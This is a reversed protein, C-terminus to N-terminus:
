YKTEIACMNFLSIKSIIAEEITGTLEKSLSENALLLLRKHSFIEKREEMYEKINSQEATLVGRQLTEIFDSAFKKSMKKDLEITNKPDLTGRILKRTEIKEFFYEHLDAKKKEEKTNSESRKKLKTGWVSQFAYAFAYTSITREAPDALKAQIYNIEYNVIRFLSCLYNVIRKVTGSSINEDQIVFKQIEQSIDSILIQWISLKTDNRCRLNSALQLIQNHFALQRFCIDPHNYYGSCYKVIPHCERPIWKEIKIEEQRLIYRKAKEMYGINESSKQPVFLSDKHFYNYGDHGTYPTMEKIPFNNTNSPFIFPRRDYTPPDNTFRAVIEIELKSIIQEMVFNMARFHDYVKNQNDMSNSDMKFTSYLDNFIEKRENEEEKKDVCGFCELWIADFEHEQEVVTLSLYYDVKSIIADQFKKMSKSLKIETLVARIQFRRRLIEM